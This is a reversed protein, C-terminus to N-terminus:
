FPHVTRSLKLYTFPTGKTLISPIRFPYRKRSFHYVGIEILTAETFWAHKMAQLASHDVLKTASPKTKNVNRSIISVIESFTNLVAKM